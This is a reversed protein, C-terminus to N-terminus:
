SGPGVGVTDSTALSDAPWVASVDDGGEGTLVLVHTAAGPEVMPTMWYSKRWSGESDALGEIRGIPIGRPLFDGLGSTLVTVGNAISQNFAVGNLVLRDEERFRGRRAEVLGFTSGDALMASARFSPHSWDMGVANVARVESIVGVLGHASVVASGHSVGDDAGVDVLFMSESGPTGPRLVTAPLYSQSVRDSLGLLGRLTQNEDLLASHTSVIASLSDLETTLADVQVARFRSENLRAQTAIFPRLITTQLASSIRQQNSEALFSTSAALVMVVVAFTV